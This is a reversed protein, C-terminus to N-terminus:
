IFYCKLTCQVTGPMYPSYTNAPKIICVEVCQSYNQEGADKIKERDIHFSKLYKFLIIVEKNERKPRFTEKKTIAEM